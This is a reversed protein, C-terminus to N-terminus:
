TQTHSIEKEGPQRHPCVEWIEQPYVIRETGPLIVIEPACNLNIGHSLYAKYALQTCYFATEGEPNLLNLNYPKGLQAVCYVGINARIRAEEEPLLDRGQLPYAVGYFTDVLMGRELMMHGADWQGGDVIYSIVGLPGSEICRGAPGVYVAVHDVEGPALRGVWQWFKGPQIAHSYRTDAAGDQTCILDGTQVPLGNITYDFVALTDM